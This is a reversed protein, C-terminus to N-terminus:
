LNRKTIYDLEAKYWNEADKTYIIKGYGNKDVYTKFDELAETLQEVTYNSHWKGNEYTYQSLRPLGKLIHCGTYHTWFSHIDKGDIFNHIMELNHEMLLVSDGKLGYQWGRCQTANCDHYAKLFCQHVISKEEKKDIPKTLQYCAEYCKWFLDFYNKRVSDSCSSDARYPHLKIADHMDRIEQLKDNYTIKTKM